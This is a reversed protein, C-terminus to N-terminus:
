NLIDIGGMLALGSITLYKKSLQLKDALCTTKNSVGGLLGVAKVSVQWHAPVKIEVGGMFSLVDIEMSDGIMDAERIDVDAGGMVSIVNGSNLNKSQTSYESGGLISFVDVSADDNDADTSDNLGDESVAETNDDKKKPKKHRGNPRLIHLGIALFIAPAILDGIDLNFMNHQTLTFLLGFGILFYPLNSGKTQKDKIQFPGYLLAAGLIILAIPWHNFIRGILHLGLNEFLMMLAFIIFGLGIIYRSKINGEPKSM